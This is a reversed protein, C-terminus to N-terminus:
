HVIQIFESSWFVSWILYSAKLIHDYPSFHWVCFRGFCDQMKKKLDGPSWAIDGFSRTGTRNRIGGGIKVRGM